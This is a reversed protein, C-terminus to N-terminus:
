RRVAEGPHAAQAVPLVRMDVAGLRAQLGVAEPVLTELGLGERERRGGTGCDSQM